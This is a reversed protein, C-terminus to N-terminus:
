IGRSDDYLEQAEEIWTLHKRDFEVGTNEDTDGTLIRLVVLGVDVQRELLKQVLQNIPTPGVEGAQDVELLILAEDCLDRANELDDTTEFQVAFTGMGITHADLCREVAIATDRAITNVPAETTTTVCAGWGDGDADTFEKDSGCAAEQVGGTHRETTTTEAVTTSTTSTTTSSTTTPSSSAAPTSGESSTPRASPSTDANDKGSDDGGGGCAGLALGLLVCMALRRM